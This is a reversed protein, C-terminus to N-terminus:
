SKEAEFHMRHEIRGAKILDVTPLGVSDFGFCQQYGPFREEALQVIRWEMEEPPFGEEEIVSFDDYGASLTILKM